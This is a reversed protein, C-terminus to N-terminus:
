QIKKRQEDKSHANISFVVVNRLYLVYMKKRQFKFRLGNSELRFM